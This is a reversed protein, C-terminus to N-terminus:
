QGMRAEVKNAIFEGAEVFQRRMKRGGCRGGGYNIRWLAPQSKKPM